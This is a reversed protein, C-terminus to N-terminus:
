CGPQDGRANRPSFLQALGAEVHAVPIQLKAAALAGGLTSNTDGYVILIDPKERELVEEAGKLIEATQWGQAGSGVGLNYEPEKLSLATFFVESMQHDYHQGTHIMVERIRHGNQHHAQNFRECANSVPKAKVFQPRAGLITVIKM